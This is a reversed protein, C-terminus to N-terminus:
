HTSNMSRQENLVILCVLARRRRRRETDTHSQVLKILNGYMKTVTQLLHVTLYTPKLYHMKNIQSM